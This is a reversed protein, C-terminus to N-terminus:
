AGGRCSAEDACVVALPLAGAPLLQGTVRHGMKGYSDSYVIAKSHEPWLELTRAARDVESDYGPYVEDAHGLLDHLRIVKAPSM